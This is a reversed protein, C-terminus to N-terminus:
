VDNELKVSLFLMSLAIGVILYKTDGTYLFAIIGALSSITSINAFLVGVAYSLIFLMKNM